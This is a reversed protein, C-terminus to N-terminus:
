GWENDSIKSIHPMPGFCAFGKFLGNNCYLAILISLKANNEGGALGYNNVSFNYYKLIDSRNFITM